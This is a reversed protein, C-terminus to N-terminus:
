LACNFVSAEQSKLFNVSFSQVMDIAIAGHDPKSDGDVDLFDCEQDPQQEEQQIINGRQKTTNCVKAIHGKKSCANCTVDRAPCSKRHDTKSSYCFIALNQSFQARLPRIIVEGSSHYSHNCYQQKVLISNNATPTSQNHQLLKQFQESIEM